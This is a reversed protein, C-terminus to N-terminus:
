KRKFGIEEGDEDVMSMKDGSIEVDMESVEGYMDTITIKGAKEDYSCEMNAAMVLYCVNDKPFDLTYEGEAEMDGFMEDCSYTGYVSDKDAKGVREFEAFTEGMYTLSIIKGDYDYDISEGYMVFKDGDICLIESMDMTANVKIENETFEFTMSELIFEDDMDGFLEDMAAEDPIWIGTIDNDSKQSPKSDDDEDDDDNDKKSPNTKEEEEDDDKDKKSSKKDDDDDNKDKKSSKNNDEDEDDNKDKKSSKKDDEDKDEDDEDEDDSKDVSSSNKARRGSSSNDDDAKDGCSVFATTMLVLSAIFALTKKM